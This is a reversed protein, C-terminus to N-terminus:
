RDTDGAALLAGSDNVLHFWPGPAQPLGSLSERGGLPGRGGVPGALGPTGSGTSRRTCVTPLLCRSHLRLGAHPHLAWVLTERCLRRCRGTGPGRLPSAGLQQPPQSSPAAEAVGARPVRRQVSPRAVPSFPSHCTTDKRKQRLLRGRGLSTASSPPVVDGNAPSPWQGSQLGGLETGLPRGPTEM